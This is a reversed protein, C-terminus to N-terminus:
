LAACALALGVAVPLLVATACLAPLIRRPSVAALGALALATVAWWALVLPTM